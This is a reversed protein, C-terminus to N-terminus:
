GVDESQRHGRIRTALTDLVRGRRIQCEWVVFVRWGLARLAAIDRRDREVNGRFKNRWFSRNQRPLTAFRCGRHQHWFCGNIVVVARWKPLVVDPRGPLTAVHLRFRFGHRHLASRVHREPLTNKGSIASMMRSRTARDVIDTM